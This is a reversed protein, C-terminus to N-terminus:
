QLIILTTLAPEVLAFTGFNSAMGDVNFSATTIRHNVPDISTGKMRKWAGNEYRMLKATNLDMGKSEDYRFVATASDFAPADCHWVSFVKGDLGPVDPHDSALLSALMVGEVPNELTVRFSNALDTYTVNNIDGINNAVTGTTAAVTMVPFLIRGCNEAYWGQQGAYSTNNNGGAFGNTYYTFDLNHPIGFGDAIVKGSNNIAGGEVRGWGRLTGETDVRTRIDIVGTKLTTGKLVIEGDGGQFSGQKHGIDVYNLTATINGLEMKATTPARRYSVQTNGLVSFDADAKFVAASMEVGLVLNNRVEFSGSNHVVEGVADPGYGVNLTGCSLDGGNNVLRGAGAFGVQLTGTFVSGSNNIFDGNGGRYQNGNVISGGINLTGLNVDGGDVIFSGGGWNYGVSATGVVTFTGNSIFYTGMSNGGNGLELTGVTVDGGTQIVDGPVSITAFIGVSMTRGTADITGGSVRLVGRPNGDSNALGRGIGISDNAKWYGSKMHLEGYGRGGVFVTRTNTFNCGDFTLYGVSSNAGAAGVNLLSPTAITNADIIVPSEFSTGTHIDTSAQTPAPVNRTNWNTPNNWDMDGGAGTWAQANVHTACLLTMCLASVLKMTKTIHSMNM